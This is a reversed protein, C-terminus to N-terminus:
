PRVWCLVALTSHFDPLGGHSRNRGQVPVQALHAEVFVGGGRRVLSPSPNLTYQALAQFFAVQELGQFIAYGEALLYDGM